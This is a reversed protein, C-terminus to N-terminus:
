QSVNNKPKLSHIHYNFEFTNLDESKFHKYSSLDQEMLRKFTEPAVDTPFTVTISKM